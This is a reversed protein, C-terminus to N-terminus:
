PAVTSHHSQVTTRGYQPAVTSHHSRCHHVHVAQLNASVFLCSALNSTASILIGLNLGSGFCTCIPNRLLALRTSFVLALVATTHARLVSICHSQLVSPLASLAVLRLPLGFLNMSTTFSFITARPAASFSVCSRTLHLFM